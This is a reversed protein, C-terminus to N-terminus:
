LQKLARIIKVTVKKGTPEGEDDTLEEMISEWTITFSKGVLEEDYLDVEVAEDLSDFLVENGKSDLFKINDDETVGKYTATMTEKILPEMKNISGLSTLSYFLVMIVSMKTKM